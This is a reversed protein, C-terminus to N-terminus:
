RLSFPDFETIKELEPIFEEIKMGVGGWQVSLSM